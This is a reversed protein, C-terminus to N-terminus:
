ARNGECAPPWSPQAGAARSERREEALTVPSRSLVAIGTAAIAGDILQLALLGPSRALREAFVPADLRALGLGPEQLEATGACGRGTKSEPDRDDAVVETRM